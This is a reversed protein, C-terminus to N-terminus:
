GRAARLRQAVAYAWLKAYLRADCPVQRWGSALGGHGQLISGIAAQVRLNRRERAGLAAGQTALIRQAVMERHHGMGALNRSMNQAHLHIIASRAAPRVHMREFIRPNEFWFLWDELSRFEPRFDADVCERRFLVSSVTLPNGATLARLRNAPTLLVPRRSGTRRGDRYYDVTFGLATCREHGDIAAVVDLTLEDDADLLFLWDARARALGTSRAGALGRNDQRVLEHPLGTLRALESAALAPGDDTSGDDVVVVQVRARSAEGIAALSRITRAVTAEANYVPIVISVLPEV